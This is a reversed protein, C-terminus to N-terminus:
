VKVDLGGRPAAVGPLESGNGRESHVRGIGRVSSSWIDTEDARPERRGGQGPFGGMGEHSVEVTVALMGQRTLADRLVDVQSSLAEHAAPLVPLLRVHCGGDRITIEAHVEGLHEPQLRLMARSEGTDAAAVTMASVVRPLETVPVPSSFPSPSSAKEGKGVPMVPQDMGVGSVPIHGTGPMMPPVPEPLSRPGHAMKRIVPPTIEEQIVLRPFPMSREGGESDLIIPGTVPALRAMERAPPMPNGDPSSLNGDMKGSSLGTIDGTSSVGPLAPPFTEAVLDPAAYPDGTPVWSRFPYLPGRLANPAASVNELNELGPVYRAIPNDTGAEPGSFNEPAPPFFQSVPITAFLSAAMPMADTDGSSVGTITADDPKSVVLEQGLGTAPLAVAGTDGDAPTDAPEAGEQPLSPDMVPLMPACLLALLRAFLSEDGSTVDATPQGTAVDVLDGPPPATGAAPFWQTLTPFM